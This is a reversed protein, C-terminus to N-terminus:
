GCRGPDTSELRVSTVRVPGEDSVTFRYVADPRGPVGVAYGGGADARAQPYRSRLRALPDGGRVGEATGTFADGDISVVRGESSRLGVVGRRGALTRCGPLGDLPTGTGTVLGTARAQAEDMGLALPGAAGGTMTLGAASTAPAPSAPDATRGPGSPVLMAVALVVLATAGAAAGGAVAQRRRRIRRVRAGLADAADPRAVLDLPAARFVDALRRELDLDDTM